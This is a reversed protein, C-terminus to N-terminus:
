PEGVLDIGFAWGLLGVVVVTGIRFQRVRQLWERARLRHQRALRPADSPYERECLSDRGRVATGHGHVANGPARHEGHM